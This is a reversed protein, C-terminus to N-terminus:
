LRRCGSPTHGLAEQVQVWPRSTPIQRLAQARSRWESLLRHRDARRRSPSSRVQSRLPEPSITPLDRSCFIAAVAPFLRRSLQRLRRQLTQYRRTSTSTGLRFNVWNNGHRTLRIPVDDTEAVGPRWVIGGCLSNLYYGVLYTTNAWGGGCIVSFNAPLTRFMLSSTGSQSYASWAVYVGTRANDYTTALKIGGSVNVVYYWNGSTLNPPATGGTQTFKVRTYNPWGYPYGSGKLDPGDQSWTTVTQTSKVGITEKLAIYGYPIVLTNKTKMGDNLEGGASSNADFWANIKDSNGQADALADGGSSPPTNTYYWRTCGLDSYVDVCNSGGQATAPRASMSFAWAVTILVFLSRKMTFGQQAQTDTM